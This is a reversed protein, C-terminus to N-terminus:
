FDNRILKIDFGATFLTLAGYAIGGIINEASPHHIAQQIYDYSVIGSTVSAIGILGAVIKDLNNM